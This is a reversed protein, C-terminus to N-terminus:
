ELEGVVKLLAIIPAVNDQADNYSILEYYPITCEFNMYQQVRQLTKTALAFDDTVRYIAGVACVCVAENIDDLGCAKGESTRGYAGKIWAGEESLLEIAKMLVTKMTEPETM